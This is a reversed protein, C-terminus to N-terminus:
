EAVYVDISVIRVQAALAAITISTAPTTLEITTTTGNVTIRAGEVVQSASFNKDKTTIVLKVIESTYEFKLSSNQYFRAPNAYDAVSSKSSAKDNTVTIGNQSWVQQEATQSVRNAKDAFSITAALKSPVVEAAFGEAFPIIQAINYWGVYGTVTFTKDAVLVTLDADYFKNDSYIQVKNEGSQIYYKGSEVVVKGTVSVYGGQLVIFEKSALDNSAVLNTVDVPKVQTATELLEVNALDKVVYENLGNYIDKEGAKLKVDKGVVFKANWADKTFGKGFVYLPGAPTVVMAYAQTRTADNNDKFGVTLVTATMESTIATGDKADIYGNWALDYISTKVLEPTTTAADQAKYNQLQGILTYEQDATLKPFTYLMIKNTGDSLYSSNGEKVYTGTVVFNGKAYKGEGLTLTYELAEAVTLFQKVNNVETPVVSLTTTEGSVTKKAKGQFKLEAGVKIYKAYDVKVNEVVIEKLGDTVKLTVGNEASFATVIETVIGNFIYEQTSTASGELGNAAAVVKSVTSEQPETIVEGASVVTISNADTPYIQAGNFWGCVGSVNIVAGKTINAAVYAAYAAGDTPTIYSNIRVIIQKTADNEDGCIINWRGKDDASEVEVVTLGNFSVLQNQYDESIKTGAQIMSTLDTNKPTAPTTSAVIYSCGGDFERLGNFIYKPGTVFITNGLKLDTNYAEETECKLKYAYYGGKGSIDQVYVSTNKYKASYTEKAVVIGKVTVTEKSPAADYEEITNAKFQPVTFSFEKTYTQSSDANAVVATLKVQKASDFNTSYGITVYKFNPNVTNDETYDGVVAIANDSTWTVTYIVKDDGKVSAPVRFSGTVEQKDQTLIIKKAALEAGNVKEEGCSVLTFLSLVLAVLWLCVKKFKKM